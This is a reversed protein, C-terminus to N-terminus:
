QALVPRTLTQIVAEARLAAEQIGLLARPSRGVTLPHSPHMVPNRISKVKNLDAELSIRVSHPLRTIPECHDVALRLLQPLTLYEVARVERAQRSANAYRLRLEGRISSRVTVEDVCDDVLEALQLEVSTVLLYFHTRAAQRDLDSPTIFASLGGQDVTFVFGRDALHELVQEVTADSAVIPTLHLPRMVEGVTKARRLEKTQVWGVVRERITVPAQDFRYRKLEGSAAAASMAAPVSFARDLPTALLRASITPLTLHPEALDASFGRTDRSAVTRSDDATMDLITM